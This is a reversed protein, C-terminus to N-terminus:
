ACGAAAARVPSCTWGSPASCSRPGPRIARGAVPVPGGQVRQRWAAHPALVGHYLLLHAEPRLTLAALKELLELPELLLHTTGDRWPKRLEVLVRGDARRRLREQALPPRLMYRCLRELRARDRGPVRVNAHLDFGGLQAQRPGRATPKESRSIRSRRTSSQQITRLGRHSCYLCRGTLKAM